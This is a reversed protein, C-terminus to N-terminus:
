KKPEILKFSRSGDDIEFSPQSFFLRPLFIDPRGTSELNVSIAILYESCSYIAALKASGWLWL